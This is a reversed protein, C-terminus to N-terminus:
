GTRHSQYITMFLPLPTPPGGLGFLYGIGHLALVLIHQAAQPPILDALILSFVSGNFLLLWDKRGLRRSAEEVHDLREEVDSLQEATLEYTALIYAKIQQIQGFIQAQETENFPTNEHPVAVLSKSQGLEAWLDPTNAYEEVVEVVKQAWKKALSPVDSWSTNNSVRLKLELHFRASRQFDVALKEGDDL